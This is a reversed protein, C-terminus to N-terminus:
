SKTFATRVLLTLLSLPTLLQDGVEFHRDAASCEYQSKMEIRSEALAEKVFSPVHQPSKRVNRVYHPVNIEVLLFKEPGRLTHGFVLLAPSFGLSQQVSEHVAFFAFPIGENWRKATDLCCKHM